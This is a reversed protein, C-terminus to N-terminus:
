GWFASWPVPAGQRGADRMAPESSGGVSWRNWVTGARKRDQADIRGESRGRSDRQDASARQTKPERRLETRLRRGTGEAGETDTNGFAYGVPPGSARES